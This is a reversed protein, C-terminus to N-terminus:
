GLNALLTSFTTEPTETIKEYTDTDYYVSVSLLSNKFDYKKDRYRDQIIKNSLLIKEYFTSPYEASSLSNIIYNVTECERPCEMNCKEAYKQKVQSYCENNRTLNQCSEMFSTNLNFIFSNEFCNCESNLLNQFCLSICYQQSYYGHFRKVMEVYIKKSESSQNEVGICNSYPESLKYTFQRNFAINTQSGPSLELGSIENLSSQNNIFLIAGIKSSMPSSTEPLGTYLELQLGYQPGYKVAKRISTNMKLLSNFVYCNGYKESYLLDFDSEDCKMESYYCSVLMDNLTFRISESENQSLSTLFWDRYTSFEEKPDISKNLNIEFRKRNNLKSFDFQNLNCITIAPFHSSSEQVIEITTLVRYEYYDTVSSTLIRCCYGLSALLCFTWMLKLVVQENSAINPIAHFTTKECWNKLKEKLNIKVDYKM